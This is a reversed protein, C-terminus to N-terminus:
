ADALSKASEYAYADACGHLRPLDYSASPSRLAIVAPGSRHLSVDAWATRRAPPFTRPATARRGVKQLPTAWLGLYVHASPDAHAQLPRATWPPWTQWPRTASATGAM